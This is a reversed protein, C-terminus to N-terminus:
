KKLEHSIDQIAFHVNRDDRYAYSYSSFRHKNKNLLDKYVLRSVAADPIQYISIERYGGDDKGIKKSFPLAPSYTNTKIKKSISRAISKRRKHTHFPNFLPNKDWQDPTILVKPPVIIHRLRQEKREHNKHLANHYAHYRLSLKKSELGIEAALREEFDM